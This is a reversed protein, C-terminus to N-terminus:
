VLQRVVEQEEPLLRDVAASVEEKAAVEGVMFRLLLVAAPAGGKLPIRDGLRQEREVEEEATFRAARLAEAEVALQTRLAEPTTLQRMRDLAEPTYAGSCHQQQHLYVALRQTNILLFFAPRNGCRQQYLAGAAETGLARFASATSPHKGRAAVAVAMSDCESDSESSSNNDSDSESRSDSNSTGAEAAAAQQHRQQHEHRQYPGYLEAMDGREMPVTTTPGDGGGAAGCTAQAAMAAGVRCSTGARLTEQQHASHGEEPRSSGGTGHAHPQQRDEQVYTASFDEHHPDPKAQGQSLAFVRQWLADEELVELCGAQKMQFLGPQEISMRKGQMGSSDELSAAAAAKLLAACTALSPLSSRSSGFAVAAAAASHRHQVAVPRNGQTKWHAERVAAEAAAVRQLVAAGPMDGLAAAVAAAAAQGASLALAQLQQRPLALAMSPPPHALIDASVAAQEQVLTALRQQLLAADPAHGLLVLLEALQGFEGCTTASPALSLLHEALQQEEQPGGQRIKSGQSKNKNRRQPRRKGGVTSALSTGTTMTAGTHTNDTYMSLGSVMSDAVSATDDFPDLQQQRSALGSEAGAVALAAELDSRRQRLQLLRAGYKRVREINEGVDELMAAAERAAQPAVLTDVLDQRGNGYAVRLAERWEKGHALVLVATDVNQLYQLTLEAADAARGIAALEDALGAALKRQQEASWGAKAALAFCMRWQGAARYARVADDLQGAAIYALGADEQLNKAELAEAYAAHVQRTRERNGAQLKLLLRLLDKERALELAAPFHQDGAAALHALARDWRRLHMDIRHRRLTPDPVAAFAQLELLCEAPDLTDDPTFLLLHRLGDEASPGGSGQDPTLQQAQLEAEKSRKILSLAAELEGCKAHSTLIARLYRVQDRRELAARVARCVAAVKGAGQAASGADAQPPSPAGAPEAEAAAAPPPPTPAPPLAAAYLGGPAATDAESLASLLDALDQDSPVQEAFADALGLFRPWAYDVLVNLDLRNVTALEWAAAFDGADLAAAMAPLVLARPRIAELNGRPMQLVVQVGGPPAAVLMGHQEINRVTVGAVIASARVAAAPRMAAKMADRFSQHQQQQQQQQQPAAEQQMGQQQEWQAGGSAALGSVPLTHLTHQQTTYLLYAGGPGSSRVAFSTVESALLRSGWYLQGNANLGVAPSGMAALLAPPLAAMQQCGRPFCDASHLPQLQGGPSYLMLEGSHLQLLVGGRSGPCACCCLLPPVGFSVAAVEAATGAEADVEVEVLLESSSGAICMALLLRDSTVWAATQVSGSGAAVAAALAPSDLALLQPLLRPLGTGAWPQEELQEELSEEWLDDEVAALLALRGDSLVAAIAEREEGDQIALCAVPAPLSATVACMPPPVVTHRLPTLLLSAGDVVVATGRGSVDAQRSFQLQQYTGDNSLLHLLLPAAPDWWCYLAACCATRREAKLYWHWNSRHWLQLVQQPLGHEDEGSLVVALFESDPSWALQEVLSAAGGAAAPVEFGGHQLGNLEFLLVASAAASGGQAARLAQRRRLERKWAGVHRIGEAAAQRAEEGEDVEERQQQQQQQQQQQRAQEGEGEVETGKGLQQQQPAAAAAAPAQEQEAAPKSVAAFLHRGNPQWAIAPLLGAAAEGEAHLEGTGRDWVRIVAASAGPSDVSATAFYRGDGRWTVSVSEPSLLPAQGEAPGEALKSHDVTGATGDAAVSHGAVVAAAAETASLPQQKHQLLPVESLLEWSKSMMLLSGSGTVLVLLEGDPSWAAAALGGDVAGVEEVAPAASGPSAHASLLVLEGSSLALCMADLEPVFDFAAISAGASLTSGAAELAECLNVFWVMQSGSAKYAAVCLGSGAIFLLGADSDVAFKVADGLETPLALEEKRDRAVHLNRM